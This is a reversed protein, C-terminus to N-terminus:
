ECGDHKIDKLVETSKLRKSLRETASFARRQLTIPRAACSCCISASRWPAAQAIARSSRLM